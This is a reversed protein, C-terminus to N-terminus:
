SRAKMFLIGGIILPVSSVIGLSISLLDHLGAGMLGLIFIFLIIGFIIFMQARNKKKRNILSIIGFVLLVPGYFTFLDSLMHGSILGDDLKLVIYTIAAFIGTLLSFISAM